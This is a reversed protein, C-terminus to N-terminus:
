KIVTGQEDPRNSMRTGGQTDYPALACRRYGYSDNVGNQTTVRNASNPHGCIEQEAKREKDQPSPFVESIRSAERWDTTEARNWDKKMYYMRDEGIWDASCASLGVVALCATLVLPYKMLKNDSPQPM